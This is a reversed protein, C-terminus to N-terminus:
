PRKAVPKPAPWSVQAAARQMLVALQEAAPTLPVGARAILVIDPALLKERVPMAELVTKFMASDTWQRPLLALADTNGLMALLGMTSEVRMFAKPAPLKYASFLEEFERDVRERLGTLIWESQTLQALSRAGRLPHGKRAIIVRENKFYLERRLARPLKEPAPGIYFDLQGDLLRQEVTPFVSEMVHLQVSPRSKRFAPIATPVLALMVATSLAVTVSGEPSGGLQAVEEGARRVEELASQARVLFRQGIGTM